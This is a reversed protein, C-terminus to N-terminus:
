ALNAARWDSLVKPTPATVAVTSNAAGAAAARGAGVTHHGAVGRVTRGRSRAQRRGRQVGRGGGSARGGVEDRGGGQQVRLGRSPRVVRRGCCCGEEVLRWRRRSVVVLVSGGPGRPRGEAQRRASVSDRRQLHGIVVPVVVGLGEDGHGGVMQHVGRGRRRGDEAGRLLVMGVVGHAGAQGGGAEAARATVALRGLGARDQAGVRVGGGGVVRVVADSTRAAAGPAARSVTHGRVLLVLLVAQMVVVMMVVLEVRRVVATAGPALAAGDLRAAAAGNPGEHLQLGLQGGVANEGYGHVPLVFPGAAVGAVRGDAAPRGGSRGRSGGAHQVFVVPFGPWVHGDQCHRRLHGRLLDVLLLGQTMVAVTDNM